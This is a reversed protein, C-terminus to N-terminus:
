NMWSFYTVFCLNPVFFCFCCFKQFLAMSFGYYKTSICILKTLRIRKKCYFMKGYSTQFVINLFIMILFKNFNQKYHAEKHYMYSNEIDLQKVKRAQMSKKPKVREHRFGIDYLFWDM